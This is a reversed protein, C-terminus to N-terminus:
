NAVAGGSDKLIMLETLSILESEYSIGKCLRWKM